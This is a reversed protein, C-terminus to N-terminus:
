RTLEVVVEGDSNTSFLFSHYDKTLYKKEDRYVVLIPILAISKQEIEKSIEINNNEAYSKLASLDEDKLRSEVYHYNIKM